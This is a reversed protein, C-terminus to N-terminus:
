WRTAHLYDYLATIEADTLHSLNERAQPGM